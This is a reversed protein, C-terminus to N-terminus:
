EELTRAITQYSAAHGSVGRILYYRAPEYHSEATYPALFKDGILDKRVFFANCGTINCGVLCYGDAALKTELFKLSAGFCDDRQWTHTKNYQMCWSVDPLFKANYEAVIVRPKVCRISSYIHYDNGDLDVSLLDIEKEGINSSILSDINEKTIFSEVVKLRGDRIIKDYQQRIKAVSSASADIWLGSWKRFLLALTNNELGNGIGFEIFIRNTTGIRNFIENIIGDDDDQSYMKAGYPILHKPDRYKDGQRIREIERHIEIQRFKQFQESLIRKVKLFKFM